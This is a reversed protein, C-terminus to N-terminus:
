KVALTRKNLSIFYVNRIFVETITYGHLVVIDIFHPKTSELENPVGRLMNWLHQAHRENYAPLTVKKQCYWINLSISCMSFLWSQIIGGTDYAIGPTEM